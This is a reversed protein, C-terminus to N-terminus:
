QKKYRYQRTTPDYTYVNFGGTGRFAFDHFGSEPKRVGTISPEILEGSDFVEGLYRPKKGDLKLLHATCGGSGCSGIENITVLVEPTDTFDLQVFEFTMRKLVNRVSWDWEKRVENKQNISNRDLDSVFHAVLIEPAGVVIAREVDSRSPLENGRSASSVIATVLFVLITIKGNM